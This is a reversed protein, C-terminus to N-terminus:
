AGRIFKVLLSSMFETIISSIANNSGNKLSELSKFSKKEIAKVYKVELSAVEITSMGARLLAQRMKEWQIVPDVSNKIQEDLLAVWDEKPTEKKILSTDLLFNNYSPDFSSATYAIIQKNPYHVKAEKILYAGEASSDYIKKGVGRIDCLIIHYAQLDKIDEIDTKHIVSFGNQKLFDLPPFDEDDIILIETNKRIKSFDNDNMATIGNLNNLKKGIYYINGFVKMNISRQKKTYYNIAFDTLIKM